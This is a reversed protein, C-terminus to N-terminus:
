RIKNEDNNKNNSNSTKRKRGSVIGSHHKREENIKDRHKYFM